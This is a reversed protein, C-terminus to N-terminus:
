HNELIAKLIERNAEMDLVKADVVNGVNMNEYTGSAPIQQAAISSTSFMPFLLWLYDIIQENSMDTTIMPLIQELLVMMETISKDKYKDILASIVTRQRGARHADSDIKRIQSYCLATYGNMHNMGVKVGLGWTSNMYDVEKQTLSIDVGGLLNIIKEFGNFDVEVNADVHVGFNVALTENLLKFGGWAYAANLKEPDRGPLSVYSDRLFSIMTIKNTNTNFSILIMSDSRQRPEGPLRDQGVLLINVIGERNVTSSLPQTNITVDSADVSPGTINGEVEDDPITLQTYDEYPNVRNIMNLLRNAYATVFIMAILVLSLFVCLVSLAAKQWTAVSIKKKNGM